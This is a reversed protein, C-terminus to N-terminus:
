EADEKVTYGYGKIIAKACDHENEELQSSAGLNLLEELMAMPLAMAEARIAADRAEIKGELYKASWPTGSLDVALEKASEM